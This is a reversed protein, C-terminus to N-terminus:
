KLNYEIFSENFKYVNDPILREGAHIESHCNHCVLICKRLEKVIINWNKPNARISSLTMEKEDPNLHHLALAWMCKNYGCCCCSGGMAEIIREKCRKRWRKVKESQKSM